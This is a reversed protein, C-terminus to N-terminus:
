QTRLGPARTVRLRATTRSISAITCVGVAQLMIILKLHKNLGRRMIRLLKIEIRKCSDAKIRFLVIYTKNFVVPFAWREACPTKTPFHPEVTHFNRLKGVKLLYTAKLNIRYRHFNGITKLTNGHICLTLIRHEVKHPAVQWRALRNGVAIHIVFILKFKRGIVKLKGINIHHALFKVVVLAFTMGTKLMM